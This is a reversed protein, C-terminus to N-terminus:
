RPHSRRPASPRWARTVGPAGGPWVNVRAVAIHSCM